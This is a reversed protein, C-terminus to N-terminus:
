YSRMTYKPNGTVKLIVKENRRSAPCHIREPNFLSPSSRLESVSSNDNETNAHDEATSTLDVLNSSPGRSVVYTDLWEIFKFM